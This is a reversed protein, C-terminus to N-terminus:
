FPSNAPLSKIMTHTNKTIQKEFVTSQLQQELEEIRQKSTVLELQLTSLELKLAEVEEKQQLKLEKRRQAKKEKSNRHSMDKDTGVSSFPRKKSSASM